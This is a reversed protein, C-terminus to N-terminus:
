LTKQKEQEKKWNRNNLLVIFIWVEIVEEDKEVCEEEEKQDIRQSAIKELLQPDIDKAALLEKLQQVEQKM